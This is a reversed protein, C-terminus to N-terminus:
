IESTKETIKEKLNHYERDRKIGQEMKDELDIKQISISAVFSIVDNRSLANAVKNEKGKIHKIEFDYENVFALM